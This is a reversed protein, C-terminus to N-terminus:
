DFGNSIKFVLRPVWIKQCTLKYFKILVSSILLIIVENVHSTFISELVRPCVLTVTSIKNL